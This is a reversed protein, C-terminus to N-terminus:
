SGHLHLEDKILIYRSSKLWFPPGTQNTMLDSSSIFYCVMTFRELQRRHAPRKIQCALFHLGDNLVYAKPVLM